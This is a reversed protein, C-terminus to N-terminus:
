IEYKYFKEEIPSYFYLNLAIQFKSCIKILILLPPIQNVAATFLNLINNGKLNNFIEIIRESIQHELEEQDLSCIYDIIYGDINRLDLRINDGKYLYANYEM